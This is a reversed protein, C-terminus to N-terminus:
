TKNSNWGPRPPEAPPQHDTPQDKDPTNALNAITTAQRIVDERFEDDSTDEYADYYNPNALLGTIAANFTNRWATTHQHTGPTEKPPSSDTTTTHNSWAPQPPTQEGSQMHLKTEPNDM